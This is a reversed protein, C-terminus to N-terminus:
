KIKRAPVGVYTGEATVDRIVVTGAGFVSYKPINLGQIIRSGTGIETCRGVVVRGSVNTGPHITCYDGLITDHGITCNLNVITNFGLKAGIALVTGACVISAEGIMVDKGTIVSPDVLTAARIYHNKKIYKWINERIKGNGIACTVYTEERLECLYEITGIVPYGDITMGKKEIDDDVFGLITWQPFQLNMREAIWITERAFDGAGIIVLNKM